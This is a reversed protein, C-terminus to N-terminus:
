VVLMPAKISANRKKPLVSAIIYNFWIRSRSSSNSFLGRSLVNKHCGLFYLVGLVRLVHIMVEDIFSESSFCKLKSKCLKWLTHLCPCTELTKYNFWIRRRSSSNSVLGRSLLVNKHCGLFYLVGLVRLVHVM